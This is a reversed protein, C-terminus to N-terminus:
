NSVKVDPYSIVTWAENHRTSQRDKFISSSVLHIPILRCRQMFSPMTLEVWDIDTVKLLFRNSVM